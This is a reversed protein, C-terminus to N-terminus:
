KKYCFTMPSWDDLGNSKIIEMIEDHSRIYHHDTPYMFCPDTKVGQKRLNEGILTEAHYTAGSDYVDKYNIGIDAYKKITKLNGIVFFDSNTWFKGDWNQSWMFNSTLLEDDKTNIEEDKLSRIFIQDVKSLIVYDYTNEPILNIVNHMSYFISQIVYITPVGVCSRIRETPQFWYKTKKVDDYESQILVKPKYLEVFQKIVSPGLKFTFQGTNNSKVVDVDDKYTHVYIDEVNLPDIVNNKWFPHAAEM